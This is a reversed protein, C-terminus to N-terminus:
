GGLLAERDVRVGHHIVAGISQTNAIEELPSADLLLLTGEDGENVGYERGLFGAARTTAAALADWPDLGLEVLKMVERHMSYGQITSWNGADTGTLVVVGADAMAKVSEYYMARQSESREAWSAAHDDMEEGRYANRIADTTLARALPAALVTPDGIFDRMDTQVALTPISAVGREAMRRALEPPIPGDDPVHTVASAGADVADRVDNWTNVHIVTPIGNERATEVAATMTAKDVSPMRGTPAYVIKVVDPRKAALEGVQRRAEEPTSMVRTPTGYETCHGRPATLCPGAAHIDAGPVGGERQSDRLPLIVNEANFLDLFATVGAYLMRKATGATGSYDMADGPGSNGYSHTHLDVLGPMVWRGEADVVEGTFGDPPREAPGAIVGDLILLNGERVERAEVDILRANRIFLDQAQLGGAGACLAAAALGLRAELTIRRKERCRLRM